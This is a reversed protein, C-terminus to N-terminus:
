NQQLVLCIVIQTINAHFVIDEVSLRCDPYSHDLLAVTVIKITRNSRNSGKMSASMDVVPTKRHVHDNEPVGVQYSSTHM